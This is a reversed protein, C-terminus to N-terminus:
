LEFKQRAGAKNGGRNSGRVWGGRCTKRQSGEVQIERTFPVKL